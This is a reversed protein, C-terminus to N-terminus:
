QQNNDDGQQNNDGSNGKVPGGVAIGQDDNEATFVAICGQTDDGGLKGCVTSSNGAPPGKFAGGIAVFVQNHVPDAAVSHSSAAPPNPKNATPVSVDAQLSRADIVGLLQTAAAPASWRWSTHATARTTGCRMPAPNTPLRQSSLAM